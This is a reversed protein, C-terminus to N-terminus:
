RLVCIREHRCLQHASSINSTFGPFASAVRHMAGAAGSARMGRPPPQMAEDSIFCFAHRTTRQRFSGVMAVGRNAQETKVCPLRQAARSRVRAAGEARPWQDHM